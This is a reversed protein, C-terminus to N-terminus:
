LEQAKVQETKLEAVEAVLSDVQTKLLSNDAAFGDV